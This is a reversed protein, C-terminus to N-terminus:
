GAACQLFNRRPQWDGTDTQGQQLLAWARDLPLPRGVEARVTELLESGIGKVPHRRIQVLRATM